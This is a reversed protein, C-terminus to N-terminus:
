ESEDQLAKKIDQRLGDMEKKIDDKVEKKIGNIEEQFDNKLAELKKDTDEQPDQQQPQEQANGPNQSPHTGNLHQSLSTAFALSAAAEDPHMNGQTQPQQTTNDM